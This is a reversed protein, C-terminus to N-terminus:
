RAEMNLYAHETEWDDRIESLVASALRLLTAEEDCFRKL